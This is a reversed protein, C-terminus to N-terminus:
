RNTRSGLLNDYVNQVRQYCECSASELGARDLITIRGRSYRFLGTEQLKQAVPTITMRRVGLLAAAFEQKLVFENSGLRDQTMLLWRCYRQELPHLRNCGASQSVQAMFAAAFRLLVGHIIHGPKVLDKFVEAKMQWAEGPNQVVARFPTLDLNMFLCLPVMGEHGVMGAEIGDGDNMRVIKSIVGSIPFFVRTITGLDFLLQGSELSVRELHPALRRYEEDPLGALLRNEAPQSIPNPM